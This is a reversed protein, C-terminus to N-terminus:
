TGCKVTNNMHLIQSSEHVREVVHGLISLQLAGRVRGENGEEGDDLLVQREEVLPVLSLDTPQDVKLLQPSERLLDSDDLAEAM